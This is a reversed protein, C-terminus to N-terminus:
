STISIYVFVTTSGSLISSEVEGKGLSHEVVSSRCSAVTNKPDLSLWKIRATKQVGSKIICAQKQFFARINHIPDSKNFGMAGINSSSKMATALGSRLTWSNAMGSFLPNDGHFSGIATKRTVQKQYLFKRM